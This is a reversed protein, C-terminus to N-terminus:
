GYIYNLILNGLVALNSDVCGIYTIDEEQGLASVGAFYKQVKHLTFPTLSMNVTLILIRIFYDTAYFTSTSM